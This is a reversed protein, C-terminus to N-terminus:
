VRVEVDGVGGAVRFHADVRLYRQFEFVVTREFRHAFTM